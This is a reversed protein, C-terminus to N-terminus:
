GWLAVETNRGGSKTKWGLNSSEKLNACLHNAFIYSMGSSLRPQNDGRGWM